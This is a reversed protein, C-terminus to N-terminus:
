WRIWVCGCGAPCRRGACVSKWVEGNKFLKIFVLNFLLHNDTPREEGKTEPSSSTSVFTKLHQISLPALLLLSGEPNKEEKEKGIWAGKKM